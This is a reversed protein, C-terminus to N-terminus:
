VVLRFLYAWAPRTYQLGRGDARILDADALEPRKPILYEDLSTDALSWQDADRQVVGVLQLRADLGAISADGHSANALLLGGPALYRQCHDWVPGAFLSILLDFSGEQCALPATYDGHVFDVEPALAPPVHRELESAVLAGDAFYKAARRDMDLFTVAPIATAPSLDVYSGAYLARKPAWTRAIEAFLPSRDGISERYAEWSVTAARGSRRSSNVM